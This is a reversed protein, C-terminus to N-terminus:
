DRDPFASQAALDHAAKSEPHEAAYRRLEEGARDRVGSRAYLLGLLLHDNPYRARAAELDAADRESLVRFKAAPDPPAPIISETGDRAVVRVDWTYTVGSQLTNEPPTWETAHLRPSEIVTREDRYIGVRYTAGEVAPWWNLRPQTTEVIAGAPALGGSRASPGRMTEPTGRLADLEADPWEARGRALATRVLANWDARYYPDAPAVRVQAPHSIAPPPANRRLGFFVAAGIVVIVSAAILLPKWDRAGSQEPTLEAALHAAGANVDLGRQALARCQACSSVHRGVELAEADSMAGRRFRDLDEATPHATM